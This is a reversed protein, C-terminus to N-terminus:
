DQMEVSKSVDVYAQIQLVFRAVIEVIVSVIYGIGCSLGIRYLIWVEIQVTVVSSLGLVFDFVSRYADLPQNILESFTKATGAMLALLFELITFMTVVPIKILDIYEKNARITKEYEKRNGKFRRHMGRFYFILIFLLLPIALLGCTVPSSNYLVVVLIFTILTATYYFTIRPTMYSYKRYTEDRESKAAISGFSDLVFARVHLVALLAARFFWLSLMIALAGLIITLTISVFLSVEM